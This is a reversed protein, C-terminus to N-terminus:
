KRGMGIWARAGRTKRRFRQQYGPPLPKQKQPEPKKASVVLVIKKPEKPEEKM